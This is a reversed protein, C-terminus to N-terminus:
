NNSKGIFRKGTKFLNLTTYQYLENLSKVFDEETYEISLQKQITNHFLKLAKVHLGFLKIGKLILGDILFFTIANKYNGNEITLFKDLNEHSEIKGDFPCEFYGGAINFVWMAVPVSTKSELYSYKIPRQHFAKLEASKLASIRILCELTGNDLFLRSGDSTPILEPIPFTEGVAFMEANFM